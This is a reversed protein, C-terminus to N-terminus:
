GAFILSLMFLLNANNLETRFDPTIIMLMQSVTQFLVLLSWILLFVLGSLSHLERVALANKWLGLPYYWTM